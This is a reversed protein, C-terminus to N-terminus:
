GCTAAKMNLVGNRQANQVCKPKKSLLDGGAVRSMENRTLEKMNMGNTNM